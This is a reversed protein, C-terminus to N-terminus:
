SFWSSGCDTRRGGRNCPWAFPKTKLPQSEDVVSLRFGSAQFRIGILKLDSSSGRLGKCDGRLRRLIAARALRPCTVDFQRRVLKRRDEARPRLRGRPPAVGRLGSGRGSHRGSLRLPPLRWGQCRTAFMRTPLPDLSIRSLRSWSTSRGPSTIKGQGEKPRYVEM